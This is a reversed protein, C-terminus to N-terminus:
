ECVRQEFKSWPEVDYGKAGPQIYLVAESSIGRFAHGEVSPASMPYATIKSLHSDRYFAYDHVTPSYFAYEGISIVSEPITVSNLGNCNYFAAYEVRTIGNPIDLIELGTCDRFAYQGISKVSEPIKIDKLGKCGSFSWDGISAVSEPISVESLRLCDIFAKDGISMVGEPIKVSELSSCGFFARDGIATVNYTASGETITSPIEIKRESGEKYHTITANGESVTYTYEM